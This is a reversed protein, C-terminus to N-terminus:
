TYACLVVALYDVAECYCVVREPFTRSMNSPHGLTFNVNSGWTYVEGGPLADDDLHGEPTLDPDM